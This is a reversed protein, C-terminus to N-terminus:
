RGALRKAAALQAPTMKKRLDQLRAEAEAQNAASWGSSLAHLPDDFPGVLPHKSAALTWRYAQVFDKSVNQLREGLKLQAQPSGDQAAGLLMKEGAPVDPALVDQYGELLMKVELLKAAPCGQESAAVAEKVVTEPTARGQISAAYYAAAECNKQRSAQYFWRMAEGENSAMGADKATFFIMGLLLQAEPDGAGALPNVIKLANVLDKKRYAALAAALDGPAAAATSAAVAPAKAPSVAAATSPAPPEVYVSATIESSSCRISEIKGGAEDLSVHDGGPMSAPNSWEFATRGKLYPLSKGEVYPITEEPEGMIKVMDAKTMGVRLKLCHKYNAEQRRSCGAALLAALVLAGRM